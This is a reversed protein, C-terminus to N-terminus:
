ESAWKDGYGVKRVAVLMYPASPRSPLPRWPVPAAGLFTTQRNPQPIVHRGLERAGQGPTYANCSHIIMLALNMYSLQKPTQSGVVARDNLNMASPQPRARVLGGAGDKM